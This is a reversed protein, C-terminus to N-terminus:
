QKLETAILQHLEAWDPEGLYAKIVKGQKDVLFSNPALTVKYADGVQGTKDIAIIFPLKVGSISCDNKQILLMKWGSEKMDVMMGAMPSLNCKIVGTEPVMRVASFRDATM